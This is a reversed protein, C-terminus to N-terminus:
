KLFGSSIGGDVNVVQGTVYSSDDSLLWAAAQAIEEPRAYRQMPVQAAIGQMARSPDEPDMVKHTLAMMQTDVFGPAVCNVRIGFQSGELAATRTLGEVAHKSAVYAPINQMGRFGCTSSTSVISGGQDGQRIAHIVHKLVNFCGYINTRVVRDFEDDPYEDLFGFDGVLGANNFAGDLRGFKAVGLDVAAKVQVSEAVDAVAGVLEDCGIRQELEALAEAHHAVAVVKAGQQLALMTFSVGIGSTSGTVLICKGTLGSM